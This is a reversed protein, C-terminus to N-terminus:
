VKNEKIMISFFHYIIIMSFFIIKLILIKKSNFLLNPKNKINHLNNLCFIKKINKKKYIISAKIIKIMNKIKIWYKKINNTLNMIRILILCNLNNQLINWQLGYFILKKKVLVKDLLIKKLNLVLITHLHKIKL